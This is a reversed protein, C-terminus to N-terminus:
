RSVGRQSMQPVRSQKNQKFSSSACLPQLQVLSLVDCCGLKLIQALAIPTFPLASCFSSSAFSGRHFTLFRTSCIPSGSSAPIVRHTSPRRGLQAVERCGIHSEMGIWREQESKGASPQLSYDAPIERRVQLSSHCVDPEAGRKVRLLFLSLTRRAEAGCSARAGTGRTCM